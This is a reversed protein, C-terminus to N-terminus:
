QQRALQVPTLAQAFAGFSYALAAECADKDVNLISAVYSLSYGELVRLVFVFRPFLPLLLLARRLRETSLPAQQLEITPGEAAKARWYEDSGKEKRLEDTRLTVCAKIVVGIGWACLWEGFVKGSDAVSHVGSSIISAAANEDGTLVLAIWYSKAACTTFEGIVELAPRDERTNHDNL